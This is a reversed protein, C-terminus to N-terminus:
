FFFLLCTFGTMLFDHHFGKEADRRSVEVGEALPGSRRWWFCEM